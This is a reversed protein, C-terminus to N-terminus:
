KKVDGKIGIITENYPVNKGSQKIAKQVLQTLGGCCPVEMRAVSVSKIENKGFIETLKEVYHDADDLKPCAIILKKGQIFTSHFGAVSFATCDAAILLDANNFYPANVPVLMLQVPWNTLESQETSVKKGSNTTQCGFEMVASGPCGCPTEKKKPAHVHRHVAQEDFAEADRQTITLAGTPCTGICAGLGDCYIDKVLKAKGNIIQLASEACSTVCDGCGNCKAEDIEIINRKM